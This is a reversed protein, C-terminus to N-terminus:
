SLFVGPGLWGHGQVGAIYNAGLLAAAAPQEVEGSGQQHEGGIPAGRAALAWLGLRRWAPAPGKPPSRNDTVISGAGCAPDLM